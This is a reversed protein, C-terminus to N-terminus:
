NFLKVALKISENIDERSTVWIVILESLTDPLAESYDKALRKCAPEIIKAIQKVLFGHRNSYVTIFTRKAEEDMFMGQYISTFEKITAVSGEILELPTAVTTAVNELKSISAHWDKSMLEALMEDKSKFYNYVTGSAIGCASAVSRITMASYGKERVQKETEKLINERVSEIIKPM